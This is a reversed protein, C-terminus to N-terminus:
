PSVITVSVGVPRPLVGSQFVIAQQVANLPQSFTYTMQMTGLDTVYCNGQNPFLLMLLSNISKITGDCINFLAKALILQRFASDTLSFNGTLPGGAYFPSQNFPDAGLTGAEDFGFYKANAVQLVRLVGVIRGWVDLGYGQATQINWVNDYFAELNATQDICSNFATLISLLRPSNAYQSLLTKTWDFPPLTGIQSIGIEFGGIFNPAQSM